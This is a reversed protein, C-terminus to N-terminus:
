RLLNKRFQEKSMVGRRQRAGRSFRAVFQEDVKDDGEDSDGSGDDCVVESRGADKEGESAASDDAVADVEAEEAEVAGRVAAAQPPLAEDAVAPVALAAPEDVAAALARKRAREEQSARNRKGLVLRVRDQPALTVRASDVVARRLASRRQQVSSAHDFFVGQTLVRERESSAKDVAAAKEALLGKREQELEDVKVRLAAVSAPLPPAAVAEDGAGMDVALLACRRTCFALGDDDDGGDVLKAVLKRERVADTWCMHHSTADCHTCVFSADAELVPEACRGCLQQKDDADADPDADAGDVVDGDLLLRGKLAQPTATCELFLHRALLDDRTADRHGVGGHSSCLAFEGCVCLYSNKGQYRRKTCEPFRCASALKKCIEVSLKGIASDVKGLKKNIASHESELTFEIDENQHNFLMEVADVAYDSAVKVTVKQAAVKRDASRVLADAKASAIAGRALDAVYEASRASEVVATSKKGTLYAIVRELFEESDFKYSTTMKCFADVIMNSYKETSLESVAHVAALVSTFPDMAVNLM